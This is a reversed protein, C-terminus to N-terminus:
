PAFIAPPAQPHQEKIKAIEAVPECGEEACPQAVVSWSDGTKQLLWSETEFKQSGDKTQPDAVVWAWGDQVKLTRVTFTVDPNERGKRMGDFIAEREASGEAPTTPGAPSCAAIASAFVLVVALAVHRAARVVIMSSM